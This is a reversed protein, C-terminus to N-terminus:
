RSSIAEALYKMDEADGRFGHVLVWLHKAPKAARFVERDTLFAPSHESWDGWVMQGRELEHM